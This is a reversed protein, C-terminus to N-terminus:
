SFLNLNISWTPLSFSQVKHTLRSIFAVSLRGKKNENYFRTKHKNQRCDVNKPKSPDSSNKQSMYEHTHTHTHTYPM